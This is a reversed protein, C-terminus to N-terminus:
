PQADPRDDHGTLENVYRWRDPMMWLRHRAGTASADSTEYGADGAYLAVVGGDVMAIRTAFYCPENAAYTAMAEDVTAFRALQSLTIWTPPSLEIELADRRRQAGAATMWAHAHIEGGDITVDGAPARAAFFWTSFRKPSLGPPTWHSFWVMSAEDVDLGAEEKAERVAARKAAALMAAPGRESPAVDGGAAEILEEVYDATDIRGGPFVWMGGAFELKSNRRLMLAEVGEDGDRLLVVTAAPILPHEEPPAAAPDM